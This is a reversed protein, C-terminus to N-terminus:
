LLHGRWRAQGLYYNTITRSLNPLLPEHRGQESGSIGAL